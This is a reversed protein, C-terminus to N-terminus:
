IGLIKKMNKKYAEVGPQIFPDVGLMAASIACSLEFFYALAGFCKAGMDPAKIEIVPVGGDIHAQKTADFAARNVESM